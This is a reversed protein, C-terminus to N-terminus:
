ASREGEAISVSGFATRRPRSLAVESSYHCAAEQDSYATQLRPEEIRCKEPKGLKEYLWCRPHFRCGEPFATVPPPQGEITALRTVDVRVDPVSRLLADTYPHAPSEFLRTRTATEVVKGAYMVAVRDCMQGVVGFDHTIFLIALGLKRQIDKLLALYAAQVTVDLATTPEDAILIEPDCSLAIAGVVRQRMGGSLQHPYSRLRARPEAIRLFRLLEVARETLDPGSMRRHLKLPESLQNGISFVPNLATMPDQVVLAIQRGRVRRMEGESLKLLDVGRYLVQGDVTRAGVKPLLRLISLATMSKGSGSEGVLGLTEGRRLVLDVGDVAKAVGAKTFVHTKLNTLQLLPGPDTAPSELQNTTLRHGPTPPITM